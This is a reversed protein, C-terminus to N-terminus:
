GPYPMHQEHVIHAYMDDYAVHEVHRHMYIYINM